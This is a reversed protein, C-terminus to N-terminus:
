IQRRFMRTFQYECFALRLHFADSGIPLLFLFQVSNQSKGLNCFFFFFVASKRFLNCIVNAIFFKTFPLEAFYIGPVQYRMFFRTIFDPVLRKPICVISRRETRRDQQDTSSVTWDWQGYSFPHEVQNTPPLPRAVEDTLPLTHEM